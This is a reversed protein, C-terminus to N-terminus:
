DRLGSAWASEWSKLKEDFISQREPNKLLRSPDEEKNTTLDFLELNGKQSHVFKLQDARM